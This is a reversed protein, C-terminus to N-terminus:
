TKRSQYESLSVVPLSDLLNIREPYEITYGDEEPSVYSPMSTLVSFGNLANFTHPTWAPWIVIDGEAVPCFVIKSKEDESNGAKFLFIAKGKTILNIRGTDHIHMPRNLVSPKPNSEKEAPANIYIAGPKGPKGVLWHSKFDLSPDKSPYKLQYQKRKSEVINVLYDATKPAHLIIEDAKWSEAVVQEFTDHTLKELLLDQFFEYAWQDTDSTASNAAFVGMSFREASDFYRM